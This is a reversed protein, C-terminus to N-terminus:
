FLPEQGLTAAIFSNFGQQENNVPPRQETPTMSVPKATDAVLLFLFTWLFWFM